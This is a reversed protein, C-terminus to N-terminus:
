IFVPQCSRKFIRRSQYDMPLQCHKIYNNKLLIDQKLIVLKIYSAYYNTHRLIYKNRPLRWVLTVVGNVVWYLCNCIGGTIMFVSCFFFFITIYYIFSKLFSHFLSTGNQPSKQNDSLTPISGSYFRLWKQGEKHKEEVWYLKLVAVCVKYIYLSIKKQNKSNKGIQNTSM